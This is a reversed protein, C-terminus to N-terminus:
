GREPFGALRVSPSWGTTTPRRYIGVRFFNRHFECFNVLIVTSDLRRGDVRGGM